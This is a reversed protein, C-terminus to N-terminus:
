EVIPERILDEHFNARAMAHYPVVWLTGVGLCLAGVIWWGLFSLDLCFLRGKKGRMIRESEDLCRKWDWEPNEMALYYSQSYAYAKIIGPVIFLLTWLLTFLNRMLGLLLASGARDKAVLLDNFDVETEGHVLKMCITTVGIMFFGELLFVLIAGAGYSSATLVSTVATYILAILVGYLWTNGFIKGGLQERALARYETSTQM